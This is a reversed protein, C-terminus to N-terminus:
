PRRGFVTDGGGFLVDSIGAKRALSALHTLKELTAEKDAALVLTLKQPQGSHAHVRETLAALLQPEQIAQNEYFYQGNADMAVVVTPNDTGPWDGMDPLRIAVGPTYLLSGLLLFMMLLLLVGAVPAADLPGCFIRAQRVFRM